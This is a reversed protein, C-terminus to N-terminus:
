VTYAAELEALRGLAADVLSALRQAEPNVYVVIGATTAASGQVKFRKSHIKRQQAIQSM